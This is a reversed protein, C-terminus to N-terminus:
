RIGLMTVAQFDPLLRLGQALYDVVKGKGEDGWQGGIVVYAPM